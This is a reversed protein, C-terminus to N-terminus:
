DGFRQFRNGDYTVTVDPNMTHIAQHLSAFPDALPPAAFLERLAARGEEPTKTSFGKPEFPWPEELQRDLKWKAVFELWGKRATELDDPGTFKLADRWSPLGSAIGVFERFSAAVIGASGESDILLIRDDGLVYYAGGAGDIGFFARPVDSTIVSGAMGSTSEDSTAELDLIASIEPALSSSSITGVIEAAKTSPDTQPACLGQGAFATALMAALWMRWQRAPIM